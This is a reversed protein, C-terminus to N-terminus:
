MKSICYLRKFYNWRKKKRIGSPHFYHILDISL